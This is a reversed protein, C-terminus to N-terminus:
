HSRQFEVEALLFKEYLCFVFNTGSVPGARNSPEYSSARLKKESSAALLLVNINNDIM